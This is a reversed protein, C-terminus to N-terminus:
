VQEGLTLEQNKSAILMDLKIWAKYFSHFNKAWELSKGHLDIQGLCIHIDLLARNISQEINDIEISPTYLNKYISRVLISRPNTAYFSYLIQKIWIFISEIQHLLLTIINMPKAQYKHPSTHMTYFPFNYRLQTLSIGHNLVNNLDEDELYPAPGNLELGYLM